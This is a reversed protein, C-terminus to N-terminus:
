NSLRSALRDLAAEHTPIEILEIQAGRCLEALAQREAEFRARYRARVAGDGTELRRRASGDTVTYVDAPPLEAELADAVVIAVVSNHRALRVLRREAQQSVVAFDSVLYVRHGTRAIRTLHELSSALPDNGSPRTRRSLGANSEAVQRLLRLVARASRHPKFVHEDADGYVVGGVRDGHALAHWALLAATEAAAVSKLRLKSGFFMSRTQDVVVLTPREREERYVKTHPRAKRATVRWDISRVDDGPQYLRVEAFDIGRGKLRSLRAGGPAGIVRHTTREPLRQYRLAVLDELRAYAGTLAVSTM